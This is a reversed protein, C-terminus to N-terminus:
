RYTAGTGVQLRQRIMKFFHQDNENTAQQIVQKILIGTEQCIKLQEQLETIGMKVDDQMRKVAQAQTECFDM